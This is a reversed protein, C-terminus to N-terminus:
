SLVFASLSTVGLSKGKLCDTITCVMENVPWDPIEPSNTQNVGNVQQGLSSQCGEGGKGKGWEGGCCCRDEGEPGRWDVEVAGNASFCETAAVELSGHGWCWSQAAHRTWLRLRRRIEQCHEAYRSIAAAYASGRRATLHPTEQRHQRGGM